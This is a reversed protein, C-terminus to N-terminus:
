AIKSTVLFTLTQQRDLTGLRLTPLDDWGFM